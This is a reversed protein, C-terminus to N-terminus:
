EAQRRQWQSLATNAIIIVGILIWKVEVPVNFASVGNELIGLILVGILAGRVTGLGGNLSAGGIVVAAIVTLELGSNSNPDGGIKAFSLVGAWGTLLGALTYIALKSRTIPVGCLRATAENSGIAYAYRGLVTFRLLAAVALALLVLSWFGPNFVVLSLVMGWGAVAAGLGYVVARSRRLLVAALLAVVGAALLALAWSGPYYKGLPSVTASLANVWAPDEAPFELRNRDALWIALGRAVSYMGLTAVFPSLRLGTIVAGNILGALAGTGVGALVAALSAVVVSHTGEWALHADGSLRGAYVLRYVWMTVVTVLAVVSGVSLDIGGSVMILLMGLAVVAPITNGLVLVQVNGVSLFRALGGRLAVLVLFLALVVVLGLVPGSLRPLRFGPAQGAPLAPNDTPKAPGM